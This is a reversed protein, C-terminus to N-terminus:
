TFKDMSMRITEKHLVNEDGEKAKSPQYPDRKKQYSLPFEKRTYMNSTFLVRYIVVRPQQIFRYLFEIENKQEGEMSQAFFLMKRM